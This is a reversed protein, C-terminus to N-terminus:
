FLYIECTDAFEKPNELQPLFKSKKLLLTEISPNLKCYEAFIAENNEISDGGFITISNNLEKLAHIMNTNTYHFRTSAYLFKSSSGGLHAAEHYSCLLRDKIKDPSAFYKEAFTSHIMNKSVIINYLLTGLIPTDIIYKLVKHKYKPCKSMSAIDDPNVLIINNFLLPDIYCAMIVASSSKGTVIVDTKKKIVNKIFDSILQVYLYTTYTMKPKDSRGCGLLDITYLTHNKKLLEIVEHWEYDSSTCDLDHILFLPSGSGEKTYFIKGFRWNYFSSNESYLKEKLVAFFFVIRNILYIVVISLSIILLAFTIKKKKKM